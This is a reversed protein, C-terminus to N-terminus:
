PRGEAGLRRVFTGIVDASASGPDSSPHRQEPPPNLVPAPASLAQMLRNPPAREPDEHCGVCGQAAHNRVWLWGSIRLPAGAADLLQLAVPTNAPVQVQYSGDEAIEIEGLLRHTAPRAESAAVGEVVRLRKARGRALERGPEQISVDITYLTGLPDDDRVVSSRADPPPRPAVAKAQVDHWATDDFVPERAGTAPDLRYVGYSRAADARWSVLLRGDALASPSHYVGDTGSVVRHSHLPRRQSVAALRGGGDGEASDAEVFAVLGKASPAPMRKVRLGEPGAYLQYDTGDANLGVLATRAAGAGSGVLTAAYVIRGDPLVAPDADNSLNFSLRRLSGGDTRCSWLSTHARRGAEDREGPVDGVFAVQVWPEVSTPTLTYVTPLYVPQRAGAAGCSIRRPARAGRLEMEFVCWPESAARKAAFLLRRGDFSLEPDAASHFGATLVRARGSASVLVLRGGEGFGAGPAASSGAGARVALPYQAIVLEGPGAPAAGSAAATALAAAALALGSGRSM